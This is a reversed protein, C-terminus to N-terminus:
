SVTLVFLYIFLYWAANADESDACIPPENQSRKEYCDNSTPKKYIAAAVRNVVDRKIVVLEWCMSKMLETMAALLEWSFIKFDIM